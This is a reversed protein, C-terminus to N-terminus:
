RSVTFTLCHVNPVDHCAGQACGCLLGVGVLYVSLIMVHVKHVVVCCGLVLLTSRCDGMTILEHQNDISQRTAPGISAVQHCILFIPWIDMRGHVDDRLGSVGLAIEPPHSDLGDDGGDSRSSPM